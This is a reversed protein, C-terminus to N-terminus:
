DDARRKPSKNTKILLEGWELFPDPEPKPKDTKPSKGALRLITRTRDITDNAKLILADSKRLAWFALKTKKDCEQQRRAAVDNGNKHLDAFKSQTKGM